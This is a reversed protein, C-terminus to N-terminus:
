IELFRMYEHFQNKWCYFSFTQDNKYTKLEKFRLLDTIIDNHNRGKLKYVYYLLYIKIFDDINVDKYEIGCSSYLQKIKANDLSRRRKKL